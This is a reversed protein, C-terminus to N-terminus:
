RRLLRSTASILLMLALALALAPAFVFLMCLLAVFALPLALIYLLELLPALLNALTERWTKPASSTADQDKVAGLVFENACAVLVVVTFVALRM